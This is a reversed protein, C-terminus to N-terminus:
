RDRRRQPFSILLCGGPLKRYKLCLDSIVPKREELKKLAKWMIIMSSMKVENKQAAQAQM